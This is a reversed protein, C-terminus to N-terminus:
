SSRKKKGRAGDPTKARKRPGSGDAPRHSKAKFDPKRPKKPKRKLKAPKQETSSTAAPTEQETTRTDHAAPEFKRRPPKAAPSRDRPPRQATRRPPKGEHGREQPRPPGEAFRAQISDEITTGQGIRGLFESAGDPDLQIYTEDERIRIAGIATKKMPGNKCLMPLLWRAEARQARGVSLTIWVGDQIEVRPTRERKAPAEHVESLEEPASLRSQHIRILAAALHEASFRDTLGTVLETVETDDTLLPDNLLREQDKAYVQDASPPSIWEAQVRADKFLFEVRRSARPPVILVSTGKRGARGTRGSRHLLGEQNKPLDAHIVLELGPLDIGRAAVDTAVCVRARGDRMAQLANAREQQSLEGSLSVVSFGRNALRSTLRAVAARTSCFVIANNAEHYRLTNIIAREGDHRGTVMAQYAIDGHANSKSGASIRLADNQYRSALKSIGGGVTASFMLTRREEPCADLIAELEERFGLNLMEDAEDLVVVRLQDLVLAGRTIHDVLRGPTGVVIHPGRSLAKRETRIDMGGVCTAVRAGAEAYLWSLEKAVQLALERTPAVVLASPTMNNAVREDGELLDGGIALGFAVTKGSGTQASVLLDRGVIEPALMSEQVETLTNYGKADLARSLVPSLGSAESM